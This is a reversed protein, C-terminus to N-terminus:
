ETSSLDLLVDPYVGGSVAFTVPGTCNATQTTEKGDTDETTVEISFNVQYTATAETFAWIPKGSINGDETLTAKEDGGAYELKSITVEGGFTGYMSMGFCGTLALALFVFISAIALARGKKNKLVRKIWNGPAIAIVSLSLPDFPLSKRWASSKPIDLEGTLQIDEPSILANAEFTIQESKAEPPYRSSVLTWDLSEGIKSTKMDGAATMINFLLGGLAAVGEEDFGSDQGPNVCTLNNVVPKDMKFVWAGNLDVLELRAKFTQGGTKSLAVLRVETIGFTAHIPGLILEKSGDNFQIEGGDLRYYFPAGPEIKLAVPLGAYKGGNGSTVLLPYVGDKQLPASIALTDLGDKDVKQVQPANGNQAFSLESKTTKTISVTQGYNEQTKVANLLIGSNAKLPALGLLYRAYDDLNATLKQQADSGDFPYSGQNIASTFGQKNLPCAGTDCLNVMVLQAHVYFDNPWQYPSNQFVLSNDELTITGYTKMNGGIYDPKLLMVMMEASVDMWWGRNGSLRAILMSYARNQIWHGMEHWLGVKEAELNTVIDPPLYVVGNKFNYEPSTYGESVVVLVPSSDSLRAATFGETEYRKMVSEVEQAVQDADYYAIDKRFPFIVEVTGSLNMRCREFASLAKISVPFCNKGTEAQALRGSVPVISSSAAQKPTIVAYYISGSTKPAGPQAQPGLRAQTTLKGDKPVAALLVPYQEDIVAMLRSQSSPAPLSLEAQGAGDNEGQVSVEYFATDLQYAADLAQKLVPNTNFSTMQAGGGSGVLAGAPIKLSAGHDDSVASGDDKVVISDAQEFSMKVDPTMTITPQSQAASQSPGQQTEGPRASNLAPGLVVALLAVIAVGGAAIGAWKWPFRKAGPKKSQPAAAPKIEPALFAQGKPPTSPTWQGQWFVYWAGTREQIQWINGNTDTVRLQILAARYQEITIQRRVFQQELLKFQQEAQQFDM